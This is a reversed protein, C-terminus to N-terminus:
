FNPKLYDPNEFMWKLTDELTYKEIPGICTILKKPSGFLSQIENKRVLKSDINIEMKHDTISGLLSMLHHLSFAKGTCINYKEGPVGKELLKLYATCVMRVDNFEREIHINGLDISAASEAYHRVLKPVLFSEHQGQGTYNFPRAVMIPLTNSYNSAMIEMALKSMAYHNVPKTKANEDIPSVQKTGYINASSALLIKSPKKVLSNLASLLNMTGVVNVGYFATEDAHGVFSIAALHVVGDPLVENVESVVTSKDLLDSKLDVVEHGFKEAAKRFHHGTFGEAGTLLLKM